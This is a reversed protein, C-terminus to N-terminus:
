EQERDGSGPEGAHSDQAERGFTHERTRMYERTGCWVQGQGVSQVYRRAQVCSSERASECVMGQQQRSEYLEGFFTVVWVVCLLFVKACAQHM